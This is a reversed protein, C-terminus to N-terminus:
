NEKQVFDLHDMLSKLERCKKYAYNYDGIVRSKVFGSKGTIPDPPYIKMMKSAIRRQLSEVGEDIPLNRM